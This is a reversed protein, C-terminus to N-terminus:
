PAKPPASPAITRPVPPAAPAAPAVPTVPPAPQTEEPLVPVAKTKPSAEVIPAPPSAPASASPTVAPATQTKPLKPTPAEAPALEAASRSTRRRLLTPSGVEPDVVNREAVSRNASKPATGPNDDKSSVPIPTGPWDKPPFAQDTHFFSSGAKGAAGFRLALGFGLGMVTAVACTVSLAKPLRPRSAGTIVPAPRSGNQSNGPPRSSLGPAPAPSLPQPSAAAAGHGNLDPLALAAISGPLFNLWDAITQPRLYSEVEMGRLVAQEVQPTLHPHSRRLPLLPIRDRVSAAVPNQGTLLYALTAALAYVDVAQTHSPPPLTQDLPQYGSTQGDLQTPVLTVAWEYALCFGTLVVQDTGPRQVITQPTVNRHILGQHHLVALASGIQRIYQLALTESLPGTTQVVQALTPGPISDIAVFPLGEEQFFDLVRALHPHYAQALRRADEVLRQQMQAFNRHSLLSPNLTQILVPQNLYTHTARYTLSFPTEGLLSDLHYKGSQLTNGAVPKM